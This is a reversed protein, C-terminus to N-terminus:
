SKTREGRRKGFDRRKGGERVQGKIEQPFKGGGAGRSGWIEKKREMGM